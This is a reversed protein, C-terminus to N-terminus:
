EDEKRARTRRGATLEALAAQQQAVLAKLEAMEKGRELEAIQMDNIQQTQTLNLLRLPDQGSARPYEPREELAAIRPKGCHPCDLDDPEAFCAAGIMSREVGPIDGGLEFYSFEQTRRVVGIPVQRYGPCLADICSAWGQVTEDVVTPM